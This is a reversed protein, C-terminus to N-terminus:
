ELPSHAALISLLFRGITILTIAVSKKVQIWNQQGDRYWADQAISPLPYYKTLSASAVTYFKDFEFEYYLLRLTSYFLPCTLNV